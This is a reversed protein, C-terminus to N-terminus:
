LFITKIEEKSKKKSKKDIEKKTEYQQENIDSAQQEDDDSIMEIDNPLEDRVHVEELAHPTVVHSENLENLENSMPFEDQVHVGEIDYDDNIPCLNISQENDNQKIQGDEDDSIQEYIITPPTSLEDPPLIYDALKTVSFCDNMAYLTMLQRIYEEDKIVQHKKNKFTTTETDIGCGWSALTMRKDLWENFILYVALQLSYKDNPQTKRYTSTPYTLQSSEPPLHLTEILLIISPGNLNIFEVQILAGKSPQPPPQMQDETDITYTTIENAYDILDNLTNITTENHIYYYRYSSSPKKFLDCEGDQYLKKYKNNESVKQPSYKQTLKDLKELPSIYYYSRDHKKFSSQLQHRHSSMNNITTTTLSLLTFSLTNNIKILVLDNIKYTPNTRYRDYREKYKIQHQRITKKTCEALTSIYQKLKDVHKPDQALMVNFEQQDFPLIPTRGYILEFPIQGTTTHISTNYNFTVFPLQEDWNTRNENSLAAIKADMTANYREIQGNTMPHYPTSYLHTVGIKKFLESIMSATFHTGNDTLICKPTEYKLIVDEMIFHAATTATCDRVAKTIVFKSLVDTLTIIYKNGQRTTPTIPGHFDMTLLQWIGEPPKIPKLAGPPKRRTHNNQLCPICSKIHNQIDAVMNPWFYRQQIEHIARDRCFHAGNAPTDHYIKIIDPRIRGKPVFPVQPLSKTMMMYKTQEDQHQLERLQEYTFPIIRNQM